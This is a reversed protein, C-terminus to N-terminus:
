KSLLAKSIGAGAPAVEKYSRPLDFSELLRGCCCRMAEYYLGIYFHAYFLRQNLEAASPNGSKAATLVEDISGKGAYLAYIQRMPIRRDEGVKMLSERAKDVGRERAICLFHWVADEVDDPNVTQHLEFQRRGASYRKAYYCAIGRQWHNPAEDPVLELYKDFDAVAEEVRGLKFLEIGRQQYILAAGPDLKLATGYDALAKETQRDIAYFRGRVYLARVSKPDAEIARTCVAFAEERRGHDFAEGAQTVLEDIKTVAEAAALRSVLSLLCLTVLGHASRFDTMVSQNDQRPIQRLRNSHLLPTISHQLASLELVGGSWWEM